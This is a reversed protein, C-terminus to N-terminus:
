KPKNSIQHKPNRAQVELRSWPDDRWSVLTMAGFGNLASAAREHDIAAKECWHTGIFWPDDRWDFPTLEGIV